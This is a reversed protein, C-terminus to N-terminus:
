HHLLLDKRKKVRRNKVLIIYLAIAAGFFLMSSVYFVATIGFSGAIVGGVAPGLVNGLFRFSQNYGLVEGQEKVPVAQRIYATVCPIIGGIALGFLFRLIILPIIAPVFAQPLFFTGALLLCILLIKEHGIRDGQTGWFRTATLNGLGTASFALGALFAVNETTLLEGVYLALQPQISFNATQVILSIVMVTILLPDRTIMLLVEAMSKKKENAQEGSEATVEKIGFIVLFTALTIVSATSVFTYTFGVSDALAGGILPGFLGGSVTGMQLTGLVKGAVKKDTQASILAMSTPIFGTVVGMLMRLFFLEWVSSVFSMLFISLAIGFGTIILIKKRGFKDGFRGWLPSVFFAVLFTIGFIFGSWRQVFADSYSGFTEIYISLFPLVMTASASVFFNAFWMIMLNRKEMKM